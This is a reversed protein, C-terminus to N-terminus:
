FPEVRAVVSEFRGSADVVAFGREVAGERLAAFAEQCASCSRMMGMQETDGWRSTEESLDVGCLAAPFGHVVCHIVLARM